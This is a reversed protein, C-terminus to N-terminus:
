LRTGNEFVKRKEYCYKHCDLGTFLRYGRKLLSQFDRLYHKVADHNFDESSSGLIEFKSDSSQPNAGENLFPPTNTPNPNYYMPNRDLTQMTLVNPTTLLETDLDDEDRDEIDSKRTKVRMKALEEEEDELEDERANDSEAAQRTTERTKNQGERQAAYFAVQPSIDSNLFKNRVELSQLLSVLEKYTPVPPKLMATVFPEYGKGLGQLLWFAKEKDGVSKGIAALNDCIAKFKGVYM